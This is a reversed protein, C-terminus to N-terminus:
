HLFEGWFEHWSFKRVINKRFSKRNESSQKGCIQEAYSCRNEFHKYIWMLKHRARFIRRFNSWLASKLLSLSYRDSLPVCSSCILLWLRSRTRPLMVWSTFSKLIYIAYIKDSSMLKLTQKKRFLNISKSLRQQQAFKM